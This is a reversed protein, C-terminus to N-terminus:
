LIIYLLYKVFTSLIKMGITIKLCYKKIWAHQMSCAAIIQEIFDTPM